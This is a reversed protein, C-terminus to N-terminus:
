VSHRLGRMSSLLAPALWVGQVSAALLWGMCLGVLGGLQGGLVSCGIELVAATALTVSASGMQNQIRRLAVFHYKIALPFIGLGLVLLAQYGDIVFVANFFMLVTPGSFFLFLWGFAAILVSLLLSLRMLDPLRLPEKVVVPFLVTALSAPGLCLVQVIMWATFFAANATASIMVTVVLPLLHGVMQTALNLAHHGFISVGMGRLLQFDPFGVFPMKQRQALVLVFIVSVVSSAVWTIFIYFWEGPSFSVALFLFVLKFVSAFLNRTLQLSSRMMGVLAQDVVLLLGTVAAGCMFLVWRLAGELAHSLELSYFYIFFLFILSLSASCFCAAMFCTSMLSAVRESRYMASIAFTGLGLDGVLGILNMASVLASSLGVQQATFSRSALWWFVFGIAAAGASSVTLFFVNFFLDLNASAKLRSVVAGSIFAAM